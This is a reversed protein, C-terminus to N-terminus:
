IFSATTVAAVKEKEKEDFLVAGREEVNLQCCMAREVGAGSEDSWGWVDVCVRWM